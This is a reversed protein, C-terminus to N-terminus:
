RNIFHEGEVVYLSKALYFEGLVVFHLVSKVAQLLVCIQIM